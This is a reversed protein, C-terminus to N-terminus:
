KPLRTNERDGHKSGASGYEAEKLFLNLETMEGNRFGEEEM